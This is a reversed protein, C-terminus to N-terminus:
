AINRSYCYFMYVLTDKLEKKTNQLWTRVVQVFNKDEESKQLMTGKRVAFLRGAALFFYSNTILNNCSIAAPKNKNVGTVSPFM